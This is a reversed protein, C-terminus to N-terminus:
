TRWILLGLVKWYSAVLGCSICTVMTLQQLSERLKASDFLSWASTLFFTLYELFEALSVIVTVLALGTQIVPFGFESSFLLMGKLSMILLRGVKFSSWSFFYGNESESQGPISSSRKLLLDNLKWLWVPSFLHSPSRVGFVATVMLHYAM